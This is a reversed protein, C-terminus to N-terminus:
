TQHLQRAICIFWFSFSAGVAFNLYSIRALLARLNNIHNKLHKKNQRLFFSAELLSKSAALSHQMLHIIIGICNGLLASFVAFDRYRFCRNM